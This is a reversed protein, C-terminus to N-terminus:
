DLPGFERRVMQQQFVQSSPTQVSIKFYDIKSKPNQKLYHVISDIGASTIKESEQYSVDKSKIFWIKFRGDKIKKLSTIASNYDMLSSSHDIMDPVYFKANPSLRHIQALYRLFTNIPDRQDFEILVSKLEEKIIDKFKSKM